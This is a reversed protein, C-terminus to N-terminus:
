FNGEAVQLCTLGLSRWMKVVRDRDDFIGEVEFYPAIENEYIERKVIEDARQDKDGRMWLLPLDPIVNAMLWLETQYRAREKRGSVFGIRASTGSLARLVAVVPKNPLDEGVRSWDYPDRDGMLALTGDLDFLWISKKIM